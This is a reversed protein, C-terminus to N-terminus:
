YIYITKWHLESKLKLAQHGVDVSLEKTISGPLILFHDGLTM